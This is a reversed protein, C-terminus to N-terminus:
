QPGSVPERKLSSKDLAVFLIEGSFERVKIERIRRGAISDVCPDVFVGFAFNLLNDIPDVGMIDQKEDVGNVEFALPLKFELFL